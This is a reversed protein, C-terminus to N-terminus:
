TFKKKLFERFESINELGISTKPIISYQRNGYILLFINKSELFNSYFSWQIKSCIDKTSYEIYDSKFVLMQTHNWKPDSYFRYYQVLKGLDILHFWEAIGILLFVISLILHSTGLQIYLSMFLYVLGVLFLLISVVIDVKRLRTNNDYETYAEIFESVSLKFEIKLSDM